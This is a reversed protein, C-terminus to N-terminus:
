HKGVDVHLHNCTDPFYGVKPDHAPDGRVFCQKQGIGGGGAAALTKGMDEYFQKVLAEQNAPLAYKTNSGNGSIRNGTSVSGDLNSIGNLDAAMGDSHYTHYSGHSCEHGDTLVGIVIKYKKGMALLAGLLKPSTAPGGCNVAHGTKAIHEMATRESPLQFSFHAKDNLIQQALEQATGSPIGGVNGLNDTSNTFKSPDQVNLLTDTTNEYNHKLRWRFVLDGYTPNSPGLNKPSCDGDDLVNGSEDRKIKHQELLQGISLTYCQAYDNEIDAEKGSQDLIYANESPSAYDAQQMLKLEANSYGWQVNGYDAQDQPTAALAAQANVSAFLKSSLGVPNFLNAMGNLMSAFTSRNLLSGTTIIMRSALSNPNSIALYREFAPQHENYYSIEQKDQENSNAVESNNMPRGYYNARDMESSLQNAGNDVNDAFAVGRELGSDLSGAANHVILTALFTAAAAAAGYKATDKAFQKAFRGGNGFAKITKKTATKVFDKVVATLAKEVGERAGQIAAEEGATVSGGSFIALVAQVGLNVVGIGLGVWFNTLKPCLKDAPENLFPLHFVNFITYEGYTGLATRQGGIGDLTNVPKGSVRRIANSQQVDGLKWNMANAAASNFANGNKQQDGTSLVYAAESITADHHADVAESTIKSGDYAMCVPVAIDYIPNIFKVATDIVSKLNNPNLSKEVAQNVSDPIDQGKDVMDGLQEKDAVAAKEADDAEQAVERMNDSSLGAIGGDRHAKEFAEQEIQIKADRDSLTGGAQNYRDTLGTRESNLTVFKSRLDNLETSLGRLKDQFDKTIGQAENFAQEADAARIFADHSRQLLEDTPPNTISLQAQVSHWQRSSALWESYRPSWENKYFEQKQKYIEDYQKTLTDIKSIVDNIKKTNEQLEKYIEALQAAQDNKGLYKAAAMGKLSAGAKQLVLRTALTRTLMPIKPDHAKMASDLADAITKYRDLTQFPHILKDFKGSPVKVEIKNRADDPALVISVLKQRGTLTTKYNYQIRDSAHLSQLVRNPRLRNVKDFTAFRGYKAKAKLKDEDTLSDLANKEGMVNNMSQRYQRTLKAFRWAAVNEVFHPIKLAGLLFLLLALMPLIGIGAFSAAIVKKKHKQLFNRAGAFRAGNNVYSFPSDGGGNGKNEAGALGTLGGAALSAGKSPGSSGEEKNKLQKASLGGGGDHQRHVPNAADRIRQGADASHSTRDEDYGAGRDDYTDQDPQFGYSTEGSDRNSNEDKAM